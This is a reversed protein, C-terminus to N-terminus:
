HQLYWHFLLASFTSGYYGSLLVETHEHKLSEFSAIMETGIKM